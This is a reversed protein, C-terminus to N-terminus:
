SKADRDLAQIMRTLADFVLKSDKESIDRLAVRNVEAAYPALKTELERGRKTLYINSKRRDETNRRRQIFGKTELNDMAAVTTPPTLGLEESLESQTLGDREWLLRLFFWMSLSIGHPALRKELSRTFAQFAKRVLYGTSRDLSDSAPRASAPEGAEGAARRPPKKSQDRMM